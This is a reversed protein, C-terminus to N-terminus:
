KTINSATAAAWVLFGICSGGVVFVLVQRKVLEWNKRPEDAIRQVTSKLETMSQIMHKVDSKIEGLDLKTNTHESITERLQNRMDENEKKLQEIVHGKDCIHDNM